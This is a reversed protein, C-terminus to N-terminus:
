EYRFDMKGTQRDLIASSQISLFITRDKTRFGHPTGRLVSFVDGPGYSIDKGNIIIFGNGRLVHLESDVTDHIHSRYYTNPLLDVFDISGSDTNVHYLGLTEEETEIRDFNLGTLVSDIERNYVKM